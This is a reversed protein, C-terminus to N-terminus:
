ISSCVRAVRPDGFKGCCKKIDEATGLSLVLLQPAHPRVVADPNQHGRRVLEERLMRAANRLASSDPTTGQIRVVSSAIAQRIATSDEIERTNNLQVLFPNRTSLDAASWHSFMEDLFVHHPLGRAIGVPEHREDHSHFDHRRGYVFSYCRRLAWCPPSKRCRRARRRGNGSCRM